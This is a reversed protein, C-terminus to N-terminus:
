IYINYDYICICLYGIINITGCCTLADCPTISNRSRMLGMKGCFIQSTHDDKATLSIVMENIEYFDLTTRSSDAQYNDFNTVALQSLFNM